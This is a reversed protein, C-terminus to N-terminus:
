ILNLKLSWSYAGLWNGSTKHHKFAKERFKKYGGTRM